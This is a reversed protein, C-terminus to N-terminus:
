RREPATAPTREDLRRLGDAWALPLGDGAVKWHVHEFRRTMTAVAPMAVLHTGGKVFGQLGRGNEWASLTWYRLPFQARFSYGLLGPTRALQRHIRLTYWEFRPLNWVTRLEIVTAMALYTGAPDPELYWRWPAGGDIRTKHLSVLVDSGEIREHCRTRVVSM